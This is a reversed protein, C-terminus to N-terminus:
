EIGLPLTTTRDLYAQANEISVSRGDPFVFRGNSRGISCFLTMYGEALHYGSIARAWLDVTMEVTGSGSKMNVQWRIPLVVKSM